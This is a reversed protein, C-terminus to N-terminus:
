ADGGFFNDWTAATGSSTNNIGIGLYLGSDAATSPNADLTHTPGAGDWSSASTPADATPSIWVRIETGNGTGTVVVGVTLPYTVTVSTLNQVTVATGGVTPFYKWLIREDDDDFQVQYFEGSLAHRLIVGAGDGTGPGDITVKIYQSATTCPTTDYYSAREDFGFTTPSSAKNSQVEINDTGINTWNSNV